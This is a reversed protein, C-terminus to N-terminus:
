VRLTEGEKLLQLTKVKLKFIEEKITEVYQPKLHTVYVRQPLPDMKELEKKLLEPTLHGTKLALKEM